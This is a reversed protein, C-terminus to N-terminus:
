KNNWYKLSCLNQIFYQLYSMLPPLDTHTNVTLLSLGVMTFGKRIQYRINCRVEPASEPNQFPPHIKTINYYFWLRTSTKSPYSSPESFLLHFNVWKVEGPDAGPSTFHISTCFFVSLLYISIEDNPYVVTISRTANLQIVYKYVDIYRHVHSWSVPKRNTSM